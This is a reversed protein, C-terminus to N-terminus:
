KVILRIGNELQEIKKEKLLKGLARKFANKSTALYKNIAKPDSKDNLPLFGQHLKLLQLIKEADEDMQQYALKKTALDIKGDERIKVIRFRGHDGIELEKFIESQHILGFYQNELAVFAGIRSNVAYVTGEVMEGVKFSDSLKLQDEIEMSACLRKSKDVYIKVLYKKGKRVRVTQEGIPLLLDKELGWDLFAGIATIDVVQLYALEGVQGYPKKLTAILRDRTDRYIFVDISDGPKLEVSVEKSPLLIEDEKDGSGSLFAGFKTLKVVQVRNMKGIQLSM